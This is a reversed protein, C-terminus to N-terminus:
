KRAIPGLYYAEDRDLHGVCACDSGLLGLGIFHKAAM